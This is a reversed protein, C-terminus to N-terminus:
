VTGAAHAMLAVAPAVPAPEAVSALEFMLPDSRIAKFPHVGGLTFGIVPPAENTQMPAVVGGKIFVVVPPTQDVLLLLIAVILEILPTAVPTALPVTM